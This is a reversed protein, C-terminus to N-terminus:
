RVTRLVNSLPQSWDGSHEIDSVTVIRVNDTVKMRGVFSRAVAPPIVDDDTSVIHVQKVAQLRDTYDAPNLSGRLPSVRHYGTWFAHDLNGAVTVVLDVDDRKAALLLALAGGGSYGVLELRAAGAVRKATDLADSLDSVVPESFRASTWFATHCNRRGEGEIFQCPRAFYAVPRVIDVAALEFGVANHPTPDSSPTRANLWAKGDGEIYARLVPGQGRMFWKLDFTRGHFIQTDFGHEGAFRGASFKSNCGALFLCLLLAALATYAKTINHGFGAM